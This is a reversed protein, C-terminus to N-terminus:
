GESIVKTNAKSNNEYNCKELLIWAIICPSFIMIMALIIILSKLIEMIGTKTKLFLSPIVMKKSDEPNYKSEKVSIEWNGKNNIYYREWNQTKM